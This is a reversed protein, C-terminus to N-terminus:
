WFQGQQVPPAASPPLGVDRRLHNSINASDRPRKQGSVLALLAAALVRWAGLEEILGHLQGTNVAGTPAIGNHNLM